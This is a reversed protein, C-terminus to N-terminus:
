RTTATRSGGGLLESWSQGGTGEEDRYWRFFLVTIVAWIVVGGGFKMLLAAVVQDVIPSMELGAVPPALEYTAYQPYESFLLLWAVLTAPITSGFLYGMRALPHMRPRDPVSLILPWWFVVGAGLWCLDLFFSGVQTAMLTDLVAPVHSLAMVLSFIGLAAAPHLLRRGWRGAASREWWGRVRSGAIGRLLLPPAALSLLLYQAMHAAALYGGGLAGLPWDLALWLVAVGAWFSWPHGRVDAEGPANGAGGEPGADGPRSRLTDRGPGDGAPRLRTVYLTGLAALFLWVGPYPQM